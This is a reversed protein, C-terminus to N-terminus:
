NNKKKVQEELEKHKEKLEDKLDEFKRRLDERHEQHKKEIKEIKNKVKEEIIKEIEEELKIKSSPKYKQKILYGISLVTEVIVAFILFSVINGIFSPFEELRSIVDDITFFTPSLLFFGLIALPILKSLDRALVENYYAAIRVAIILASGVLSITTHELGPALFFMFLSYVVFWVFIVIPYIFFNTVIFAFGSAIKTVNKGSSLHKSLNLKFLDRKAIFRYFHFIFIGYIVMGIAFGVLDHFSKGYAINKETKIFYDKLSDLSINKIDFSIKDLTKSSTNNSSQASTDVFIM